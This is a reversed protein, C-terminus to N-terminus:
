AIVGYDVPYAPIAFREPFPGEFGTLPRTRDDIYAFYHVFGKVAQFAARRLEFRSRAWGRLYALRREPALATFRRFNGGLPTLHEILGLVTKMDTRMPDGALALERDVRRAVAAPEVPVGVLLAEAAARMVAYQKETLSQLEAGDASAQPYDRTCGAPLLSAAAIAATGGATTRLFSRRDLPPPM